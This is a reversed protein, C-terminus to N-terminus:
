SQRQSSSPSVFVFRPFYLAYGGARERDLRRLLTNKVPWWAETRIFNSPKGTSGSNNSHWGSTGLGFVGCM